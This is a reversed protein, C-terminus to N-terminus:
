NMLQEGLPSRRRELQEGRLYCPATCAPQNFTMQKLATVRCPDNSVCLCGIINVQAAIRHLSMVNVCGSWLPSLKGGWLPGAMAEGWCDGRDNLHLVGASHFSGLTAKRLSGLISWWEAWSEWTVSGDGWKWFGFNRAKPLQGLTEWLIRFLTM